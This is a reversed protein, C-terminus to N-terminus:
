EKGEVVKIEEKTLGYLINLLMDEKEWKSKNMHPNACEISM